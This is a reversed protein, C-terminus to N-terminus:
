TGIVTDSTPSVIGFYSKAVSVSATTANMTAFAEQLRKKFRDYQQNIAAIVAKYPDATYRATSAKGDSIDKPSFLPLSGTLQKAVAYTAFLRSAALFRTEAATPTALVRKLEYTDPLTLSVGELEVLLADNYLNLALTEDELEEDSVGLTARIEDYTTYDTILM